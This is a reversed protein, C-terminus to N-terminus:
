KASAAPWNGILLERDIRAPDLYKPEKLLIRLVYRLMLGRKGIEEADIDTERLTKKQSKKKRM